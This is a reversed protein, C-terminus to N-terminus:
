YNRERVWVREMGEGRKGSPCFSKTTAGQLYFSVRKCPCYGVCTIRSEPLVFAVFVTKRVKSMFSECKEWGSLFRGMSDGVLALMMGFKGM